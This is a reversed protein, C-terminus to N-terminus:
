IQSPLDPIHYNLLNIFLHNYLKIINTSQKKICFFSLLIM